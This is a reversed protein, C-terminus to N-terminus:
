QKDEELLKMDLGTYRKSTAVRKIASISEVECKFPGAKREAMMLGIHKINRGDFPIRPTELYGRYTLHFDEFPIVVDRWEGVQEDPPIPIIGQYLDDEWPGL